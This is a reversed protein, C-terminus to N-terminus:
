ICIYIYTYMYIYIYVCLFVCVPRQTTIHLHQKYETKSPTKAQPSTCNGIALRAGARRPGGRHPLNGQAGRGRGRTHIHIYM